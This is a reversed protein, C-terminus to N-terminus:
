ETKRVEKNELTKNYSQAFQKFRLVSLANRKDQLEQEKAKIEDDFVSSYVEYISPFSAKSGFAISVGKTILNALIYDFTAREKAEYRALRNSSEIARIIEGVTM